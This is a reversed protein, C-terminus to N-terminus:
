CELLARGIARVEDPNTLVWCSPGGVVLSSVTVTGDPMRLVEWQPTGDLTRIVTRKPRPGPDPVVGTAAVYAAHGESTVTYFRHPKGSRRPDLEQRSSLLGGAVMRKLMLYATSRRLDCDRIIELGYKAGEEILYRLVRLQLGQSARRDM